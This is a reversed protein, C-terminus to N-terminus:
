PNSAFYAPLRTLRFIKNLELVQKAYEEASIGNAKTNLASAQEDSLDISVATM